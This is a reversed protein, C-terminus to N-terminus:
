AWESCAIIRPTDLDSRHEDWLSVEGDGGDSYYTLEEEQGPACERMPRKEIEVCTATEVEDPDGVIKEYEELLIEKAHELHSASVWYVSGEVDCRFLKNKSM